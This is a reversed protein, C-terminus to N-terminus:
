CYDIKNTSLNDVNREIEWYIKQKTDIHWDHGHNHLHIDAFLINLSLNPFIYIAQGLISKLHRNLLFPYWTRTSPFRKISPTKSVKSKELCGVGGGKFVCLALM